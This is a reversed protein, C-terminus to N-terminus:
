RTGGIDSCILEVDSLALEGVLDDCLRYRRLMSDSLVSKTRPLEVRGLCVVHKKANRLGRGKEDLACDRPIQASSRSGM